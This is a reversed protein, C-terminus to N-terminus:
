ALSLQTLRSVVGLADLDNNRRKWRCDRGQRFSLRDRIRASLAPCPPAAASRSRVRVRRHRACVRVSSHSLFLFLFGNELEESSLYFRKPHGSPSNADPSPLGGAKVDLIRRRQERAFPNIATREIRLLWRPPATM